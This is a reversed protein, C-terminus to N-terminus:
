LAEHALAPDPVAPTASAIASADATAGAGDLVDLAARAGSHQPDLELVRALLARAHPTDDVVLACHAAGVLAGVNEPDRDLIKGLSRLGEDLRGEAILVLARHV